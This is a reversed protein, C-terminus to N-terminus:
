RRRANGTKVGGPVGRGSATPSPRSITVVSPQPSLQGAIFNSSASHGTSVVREAAPASPRVSSTATASARRSLTIM